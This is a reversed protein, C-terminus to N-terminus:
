GKLSFAEMLKNTVSMLFDLTKDFSQQAEDRAKASNDAYTRLIQLYGENMQKLADIHGEETKIGAQVLASAGNISQTMMQSLASTQENYYRAYQFAQSNKDAKMRRLQEQATNLAEPDTQKKVKAKNTGVGTGGGAELNKIHAEQDKIEQEARANGRGVNRNMAVLSAGSVGANLFSAIAETMKEAAQADHYAKTLESNEKAILLTTKAAKIATQAEMFRNKRQSNMLENMLSNFVALYSVNFWPNGAKGDEIVQHLGALIEAVTRPRSLKPNDAQANAIDSPNQTDKVAPNMTDVVDSRNAIRVGNIVEAVGASSVNQKDISHYNTVGADLKPNSSIADSM